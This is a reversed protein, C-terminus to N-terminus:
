KKDSFFAYKFLRYLLYLIIFTWMPIGGKRWVRKMLFRRARKSFSRPM